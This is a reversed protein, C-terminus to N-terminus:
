SEVAKADFTGVRDAAEAIVEVLVDFLTGNQDLFAPNSIAYRDGAELNVGGGDATCMFCDATGANLTLASAAGSASVLAATAAAMAFSKYM